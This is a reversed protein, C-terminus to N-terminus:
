GTGAAPLRERHRSAETPQRYQAEQLFRKAQRADTQGQRPVKLAVDRDLDKDHAKGVTGFGGVGIEELLQFRDYVRTQDSQSQRADHNSGDAATRFASRKTDSLPHDATVALSERSDPYGFQM